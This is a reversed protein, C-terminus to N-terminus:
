PKGPGSDGLAMLIDTLAGVTLVYLRSYDGGDPPREHLHILDELNQIQRRLTRAAAIPSAASEVDISEGLAALVACPSLAPTDFAEHVSPLEVHCLAEVIENGICFETLEDDRAGEKDYDVVVIRPLPQHAPWGEILTTQVLGGEVIVAITPPQPM